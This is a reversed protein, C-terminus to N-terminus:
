SDLWGLIGAEKGHTSVFLELPFIINWVPIQRM